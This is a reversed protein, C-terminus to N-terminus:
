GRRSRTTTARHQRPSLPKVRSQPQPVNVEGIGRNRGRRRVPRTMEGATELAIKCKPGTPAVREPRLVRRPTRMPLHVVDVEAAEQARGGSPAHLGARQNSTEHVGDAVPWPEHRLGAASRMPMSAGLPPDQSLPGVTAARVARCRPWGGQGAWYRRLQERPWRGSVGSMPARPRGAAQTSALAPALALKAETSSSM